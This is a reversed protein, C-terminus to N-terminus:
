KNLYLCLYNDITYTTERRRSVGAGETAVCLRGNVMDEGTARLCELLSPISPPM